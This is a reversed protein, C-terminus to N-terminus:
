NSLNANFVSINQVSKISCRRPNSIKPLVAFIILEMLSERVLVFLFAETRCLAQNNSLLILADKLHNSTM